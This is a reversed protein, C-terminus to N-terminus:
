VVIIGRNQRMFDGSTLGGGGAAAPGKNWDTRHAPVQGLAVGRRTRRLWTSCQLATARAGACQIRPTFIWTTSWNECKTIFIVMIPKYISGLLSHNKFLYLRIFSSCFPELPGRPNSFFKAASYIVILLGSQFFNFHNWFRRMVRFERLKSLCFWDM